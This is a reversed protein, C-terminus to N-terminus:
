MHMNPETIMFLGLIEHAIVGLEMMNLSAKVLSPKQLTKYLELCMLKCVFYNVFLAVFTVAYLSSMGKGYIVAVTVLAVIRATARELPM